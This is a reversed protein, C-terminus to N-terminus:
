IANPVTLATIYVTFQLVSYKGREVKPQSLNCMKWYINAAAILSTCIFQLNNRAFSFRGSLSCKEMGHLTMSHKPGTKNDGACYIALHGFELLLQGKFGLNQIEALEAAINILIFTSKPNVSSLAEVKCMAPSKLGFRLSYRYRVKQCCVTLRRLECCEM